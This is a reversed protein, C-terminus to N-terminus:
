YIEISREGTYRYEAGLVTTLIQLASELDDNTYSGTFREDTYESTYRINVDFQRQMSAIVRSVPENEFRFIGNIWGVGNTPPHRESVEVTGQDVVAMQNPNVIASSDTSRNSVRVTGSQCIIREVEARSEINFTTGLVETRSRETTVVFSGGERVELYAEGSLRVTRNQAWEKEDYTISSVANLIVRSSDPLYWTLREGAETRITTTDDSWFFLGFLVAIIVVAAATSYRLAQVYTITASANIKSQIGGWIRESDPQHAPYLRGAAKYLTEFQEIRKREAPHDELWQEFAEKEASSLEGEIWRELFGTTYYKKAM